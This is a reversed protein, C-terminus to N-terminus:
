PHGGLCVNFGGERFLAGIRKMAKRSPPRTSKMRNQLGLRGYKGDAIRHFPLLDIDRVGELPQLFDIMRRLNEQRDTIGPIVPFRIRLRRGGRAAAALNELIPRNSVGTYFRHAGDDMLKLDFLILDSRAAIHNFIDAPAYGSTDVASHIAQKRCRELLKALFDPQMLPEGGSFTAGGGSEDYFILDKAIQVIVEDVTMRRGITESRGSAESRDGACVRGISQPEPAQGEPNHCWWCGLPCGKLFVTTRIGPGDHIAYKKVRFVIGDCVGM